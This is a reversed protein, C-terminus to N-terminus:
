ILRMRVVQFFKAYRLHYAYCLKPFVKLQKISPFNKMLVVMQAIECKDLDLFSCQNYGVDVLAAIPFLLRWNQSQNCFFKAQTSKEERAGTGEPGPYSTGGTGGERLGQECVYRQESKNYIGCLLM